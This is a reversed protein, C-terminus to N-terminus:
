QLIEFSVYTSCTSPPITKQKTTTYRRRAFISLLFFTLTQSDQNHYNICHLVLHTIAFPVYILILVFHLGCSDCYLLLGLM